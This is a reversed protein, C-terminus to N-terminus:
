VQIHGEKLIMINDITLSPNLIVGSFHCGVTIKGGYSVNNGFGIHVAGWVKEDENTCGSLKADNNTGIGLEAVNKGECGFPRLATRIAEAEQGGMIRIVQGDKITMRVPTEIRGIESFSVDIVLVGETSGQVSGICGEGAPINSFQGPEHAFGTDAKGKMRAISMTLDTGGPATLHISRGITLIDAIKRSKDHLKAYNWPETRKLVEESMGEVCLIRVGERCAQRRAETHSLSRSTLMLIANMHSMFASIPPPLEFSHNHIAPLVLYHLSSKFPQLGEYFLRSLEQLPEDALLLVKEGHKIKLCDKWISHITPKVDAM